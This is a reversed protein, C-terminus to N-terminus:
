GKRVKLSAEAEAARKKTVAAEAELASIRAGKSHADKEAEERSLSAESQLLQFSIRFMFICEM